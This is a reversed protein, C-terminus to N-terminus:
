IYDKPKNKVKGIRVTAVLGNKKDTFTIM